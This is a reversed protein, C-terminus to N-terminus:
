NIGMSESGSWDKKITIVLDLFRSLDLPDEKKPEIHDLPTGDGDTTKTGLAYLHNRYVHFCTTSFDGEIPVVVGTSTNGQPKLPNLQKNDIRVNWTKLYTEHGTAANRHLLQLEFTPINEKWEFPLVFSSGYVAGKVLSQRFDPKDYPTSWFDALQPDPNEPTAEMFKQVDELGVCGDNNLDCDAFSKGANKMWPFFDALQIEYVTYGYLGMQAGYEVTPDTFGATQSGNVVYHVKGPNKEGPLSENDGTEGALLPNFHLRNNKNSAILRIMTPSVDNVKAPINRFYGVVGAVQRNLVVVAKRPSANGPTQLQLTGHDTAQILAKGAFIEEGSLGAKQLTASFQKQFEDASIQVVQTADIAHDRIANVKRLPDPQLEYDSSQTFGLAFLTYSGAPLCEGESARFAISLEKGRGNGYDWAQKWVNEEIQKQLVIGQPNLVFLTVHNIGQNPAISQLPRGARTTLRDGAASLNIVLKQDTQVTDLTATDVPTDSVCADLCLLTMLVGVGFSTSKM